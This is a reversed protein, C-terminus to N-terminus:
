GTGAILARPDVALGSRASEYCALVIGLAALADKGTVLPDRGERVAEVFDRVQLTHFPIQQANITTLDINPDVGPPFLPEDTITEGVAWLQNYGERGEPIERVGITSGSSGMVRIEVGLGPGVATTANLTAMGGNEFQLVAIATDEVEINDGHKYTGVQAQVSVVSGMFWQLLDIYHVAQTMLVGGGDNDWTGRWADKSYYEPRRYLQVSTHGLVPTGIEGNDIAAKLRQSAPWFRRQFLVGLKVGATDCAEVMRRASAPDIAIPKECLVHAGAAAAAVVVAEHTPHPTCVTVIDVGSALLEDVSGVHQAIGFAEAQAQAKAPDVDAVVTVTVGDVAQFGEIHNRSIVGCGVVGVRLNKSTM